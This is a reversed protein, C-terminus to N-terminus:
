ACREERGGALRASGPGKSTIVVQHLPEGDALRRAQDWSIPQISWRKAEIRVSKGDIWVTPLTGAKVRRWLGVAIRLQEDESPILHM